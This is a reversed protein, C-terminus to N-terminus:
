NTEQSLVTRLSHVVFPILQRPVHGLFTAERSPPRFPYGRISAYQNMGKEHYDPGGSVNTAAGGHVQHFTGEGLLVVLESGQLECTRSYFDLNLYGGGPLDFQEDFGELEDIMSRSMFLANSEAIPLFLGGRSSEALVGIEFLAYGQRPWNIRRLLEDEVSENYGREVSHRQVESGLHWSLTAVIPRSFMGLGLLAARIMGPTALRAGDIMFGLYRGRALGIGVNAAHAPSPNKSDLYLYRFNSGFGTVDSKSLPPTSGNEVVIVEYQDEKVGKQYLTSLSHLTRPAERRMNFVVVIISLAPAKAVGNSERSASNRM